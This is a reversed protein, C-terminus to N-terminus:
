PLLAAAAALAPGYTPDRLLAQRIGEGLLEGGVTLLGLGALLRAIGPEVQELKAYPADM